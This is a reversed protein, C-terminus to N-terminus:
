RAHERVAALYREPASRFREACSVSCFYLVTGDLEIRAKAADGNSAGRPQLSPPLHDAM